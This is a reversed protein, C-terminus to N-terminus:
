DCTSQAFNKFATHHHRVEEHLDDAEPLELIHRTTLIHGAHLVLNVTLIALM